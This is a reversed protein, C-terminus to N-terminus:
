KGSGTPSEIKADIPSSSPKKPDIIVKNKANNIFRRINYM